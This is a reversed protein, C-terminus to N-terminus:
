RKVFVLKDLIFQREQKLLELDRYLPKRRHEIQALRQGETVTFGTTRATVDPDVADIEAEKARIEAEKAVLRRYLIIQWIGFVIATLLTLVGVILGIIAAATAISIFAFYM